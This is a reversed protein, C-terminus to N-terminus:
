NTNTTTLVDSSCKPHEKWPYGVQGYKARLHASFRYEVRTNSHAHYPWTFYGQFSCGFHLKSMDVKPWYSGESFNCHLECEHINPKNILGIHQRMQEVVLKSQTAKSVWHVRLKLQNRDVVAVRRGFLSVKDLFRCKWINNGATEQSIHDYLHLGRSKMNVHLPFTLLKMSHRIIRIADFYSVDM